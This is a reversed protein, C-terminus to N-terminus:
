RGTYLVCAVHVEHAGRAAHEPHAHGAANLESSREAFRDFAEEGTQLLGSRSSRVDDDTRRAADEAERKLERM